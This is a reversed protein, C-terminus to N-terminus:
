AVACLLWLAVVPFPSSFGGVFSSSVLRRAARAWRITSVGRAGDGSGSVGGSRLVACSDSLVACSVCLWVSM